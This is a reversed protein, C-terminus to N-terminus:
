VINVEVLDSAHSVGAAGFKCAQESSNVMVAIPSDAIRAIFPEVVKKSASSQMPLGKKGYVILVRISTFYKGTAALPSLQREKTIDTRTLESKEIFKLDQSVQNM